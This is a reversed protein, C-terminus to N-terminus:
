KPPPSLPIDLEAISDHLYTLFRQNRAGKLAGDQFNARHFLEISLKMNDKDTFSYDGISLKPLYDQHNAKVFSLLQDELKKILDLSTSAIVNITFTESM